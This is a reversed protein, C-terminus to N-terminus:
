SGGQKPSNRLQGGIEAFWKQRVAMADLLAAAGDIHANAQLKVPRLRGSDADIRVATDLLHMKLLDNDGINLRGDNLLGEVERLVPTLNTGQYVDDMHFGYQQMQQVLYQATYRDYGVQLPYLQWREVLQCFWAFCDHYDVFSEGSPQLLGRRVYVDYPLNDRAQADALRAAPLFFRALVHLRGDKEVVVCCATLDTTRSLDIGGVCYCGRLEELRIPPGCAKEVAQASVWAQSSNQRVNCYKALFEAKAPLSERAIALEEELYAWPVSVGLNPNAKALEARDDWKEVDDIQYLLPLLRKERSDGLLLRTSRRLLEDYVGDSTYGSTSLSLLLPQRRSGRGSKLVDYQRLGAEGPWSAIEDCIALHPNYGDSKKASFAIKKVTSNTQAVYYDSKRRRTLAALEPEALVTQGFCSYVIDAQDLKPAVCYIEAGYEGDLYLCCAMVASALLTKGNKRGVVLVVERFYRRGDAEVLGFILSLAAKQWLELKLLDSRGRSHHCFGEVFRIVRDAKEADLRYEGAARGAEIREYLLRVWRGVTVRGEEMARRYERIYDNM